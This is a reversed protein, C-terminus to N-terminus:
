GPVGAPRSTAAGVVTVPQAPAPPRAHFRAGKLWIRLAEWHIGALVKLTLLPAGLFARFIAADTLETRRASFAAHLMPGQADRSDVAVFLEDTPPRVTFDYRMAMQQLPSVYFGKDCAQRVVGDACPDIPILYSHRQGFTNNVEYLIARLRGRADHCFYLSLPNFVQGLVRPMCVILIPGGGEIGAGALLGEVYPKLARGDGPGHDRDHFGVLAPRNHGFLRLRRDLAGLEDLDLLLQFIRYRLRHRRPRLRQHVVLGAYLGSAWGTM